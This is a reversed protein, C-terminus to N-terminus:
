SAIRHVIDGYGWIVTGLTAMSLAYITYRNAVKGFYDKIDGMTLIPNNEPSLKYNIIFAQHEALLSFVVTISGSRQFWIDAVEEPPPPLFFSLTPALISISIFLIFLRKNTRYTPKILQDFM